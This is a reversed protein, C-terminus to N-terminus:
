KGGGFDEHLSKPGEKGELFAKDSLSTLKAMLDLYMLHGKWIGFREMMLSAQERTVPGHGLNTKGIVGLLQSQDEWNKDQAALFADQAQYIDAYRQAEAYPMYGLAGTTQATKWATGKLSKNSFSANISPGDSEQDKPNVQIRSLLDMNKQMLSKEKQVDAVAGEMVKSNDEIEERMTARAENALKHERHREVCGEIGVAILLGVTITLLHLLFDKVGHIPEHPAHVDM